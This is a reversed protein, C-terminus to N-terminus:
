LMKNKQINPHQLCLQITRSPLNVTPCLFFSLFGSRMQRDHLDWFIVGWWFVRWPPFFQHGNIKKLRFPKKLGEPTLQPHKFDMKFLSNAKALFFGASMFGLTGLIFPLFQQFLFYSDKGLFSGSAYSFPPTVLLYWLYVSM